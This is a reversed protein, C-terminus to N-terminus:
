RAGDSGRARSIPTVARRDLDVREPVGGRLLIVHDARVEKLVVGASLEEGAAVVRRDAGASAFIARGKGAGGRSIVGLLHHARATAVAPAPGPDSSASGFLQRPLASPARAVDRAGDFTSEGVAPPAIVVWTWHALTVALAAALALELAFEWRAALFWSRIRERM